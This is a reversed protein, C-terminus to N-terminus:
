KDHRLAHVEIVGDTLRQKMSTKDVLRIVM